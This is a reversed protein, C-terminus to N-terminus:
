RKKNKEYEGRFITNYVRSAQFLDDSYSLLLYIGNKYYANKLTYHQQTIKNLQNLSKTEVKNNFRDILVVM